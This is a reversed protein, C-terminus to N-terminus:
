LRLWLGMTNIRNRIFVYGSFEFKDELTETVYALGPQLVYKVGLAAGIQKLRAPALLRSASFAPDPEAYELAATQQNVSKFIEYEAQLNLKPKTQPCAAALAHALM